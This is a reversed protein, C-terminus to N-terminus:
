EVTAPSEVAVVLAAVLASAVVLLGLKVKISGVRSLVASM